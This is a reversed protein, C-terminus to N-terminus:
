TRGEPPTALECAARKQREAPTLLGDFLIDLVDRAQDDPTRQGGSFHNTFMTGYLLDSVVRNIREVPVARFRGDRILGAYVEQWDKTNERKHELYTPAKRDRYEAREIILLEAIEPNSQFFAFYSRVAVALRDLPDDIGAYTERVHNCLRIMARDVTALFLEEKSPFYLYVTGKALGCAAAIEQVETGPYGNRAFVKAAASLLEERRRASADDKRSCNGRAPVDGM